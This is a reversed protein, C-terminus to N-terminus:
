HAMKLSWDFQLPNRKVLYHSQVLKIFMYRSMYIFTTEGM